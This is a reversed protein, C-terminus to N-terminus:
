EKMPIKKEASSFLIRFIRLLIAQYIKEEM